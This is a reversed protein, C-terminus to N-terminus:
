EYRLSKVPDALAARIAQYSVTLLAVGLASLGAYLFISWSIDIRYAFDELWRQMALYALPAAVVLAIAVLRAFDKSLLVVIGTVSAGLVKRVGIEKTRREATFAALGFLGLCAILVALLTFFTVARSLTREQEALQAFNDDLFAYRIPEEPAFQQWRSPLGALFDGMGQGGLKVVLQRGEKAYSIVIPEIQQRLSQFHFDSVMGIVQFNENVVQGIPDDSIGLVRAAAENIILASSDSALELSFDRGAILRMGLTSVYNEDGPFIQITREEEMAPTKFTRMWIGSGTPVRLAFSTQAVQPQQVLQQRFAEANTGLDQMNEIVMVGEHAFGKDTNQMFSLQQYVVLSSIGLVLALAFQVVVLGSRLRQNGRVQWDGKLIKVPRFRALFFAPYLGALLGVGVSFGLLAVLHWPNGFVSEVLTNGTVFTFAALMAEALAAAGLMALLSFVVTESLFQRVLTGRGAGLTKKIGVEKARISSRATTLNVYNVGAILLIFVGILGLVYVQVPNGGPVFEFNFDSHLYIDALPQTWFRVAAPSTRWAEYPMSQGSAPYAYDRLVTELGQQLDAETAGPRLKAYTYYRANGWHTPAKGVDLPLWLHAPLHTKNTPVEVVGSVQYATEEEGVVLTQGMAAAVSGFYTRALVDSLVVENPTKLVSAAEGRVFRHAFVHFFTSDVLLYASEDYTQNGVTVAITADNKDARTVAEVDTSAQPLTEALQHQATAFGGMDFFDTAVRFIREHDDFHRDYTLEQQVYLLLVFAAAIGLALGGMNLVAYVPSKRLSRLAIRFHNKLM